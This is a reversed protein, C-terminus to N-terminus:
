WRAIRDAAPTLNASAVGRGAARRPGRRRISDHQHAVRRRHRERSVREGGGAPEGTSHPAADAVPPAALRGVGKEVDVVGGFQVGQEGGVADGGEGDLGRAAIGAGADGAADPLQPRVEARREREAEGGGLPPRVGTPQEALPRLVEAQGRPGDDRVQGFQSVVRRVAQGVREEPLGVPLLRHRVPQGPKAPVLQLLPQAALVADAAPPQLRRHARLPEARPVLDAQEPLRSRFQAVGGGPGRCQGAPRVQEEVPEGPLPRGAAPHPM